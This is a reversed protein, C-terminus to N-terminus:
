FIFQTKLDIEHKQFSIWLPGLEIQWKQFSIHVLEQNIEHKWSSIKLPDVRHNIQNKPCKASCLTQDHLPGLQNPHLLPLWRYSWMSNWKSIWMGCCLCMKQPGHWMWVRPVKKNLCQLQQPFHLIWSCCCVSCMRTYYTTYYLVFM